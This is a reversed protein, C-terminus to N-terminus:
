ARRVLLVHLAGDRITLAVVDVTVSVPDYDRPDYGALFREEDHRPDDTSM